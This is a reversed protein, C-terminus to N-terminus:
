KEGTLKALEKADYRSKYHLGSKAGARIRLFRSDNSYISKVRETMEAVEQDSSTFNGQVSLIGRALQRTVLHKPKDKGEWIKEGAERVAKNIQEERVNWEKGMEFAVQAFKEPDFKGDEGYQMPVALTPSSVQTDNTNETSNNKTSM